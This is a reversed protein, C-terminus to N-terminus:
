SSEETQGTVEPKENPKTLNSLPISWKALAGFTGEHYRYAIEPRKKKLRGVKSKSFKWM